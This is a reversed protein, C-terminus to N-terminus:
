LRRLLVRGLSSRAETTHPLALFGGSLTSPSEFAPGVETTDLGAWLWVWWRFSSEQRILTEIVSALMSSYHGLAVSM